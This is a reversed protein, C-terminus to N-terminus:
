MVKVQKIEWMLESEVAWLPLYSKSSINKIAFWIRGAFYDDIVIYKSLRSSRQKKRTVGESTVKNPTDFMTVNMTVIDASTKDNLNYLRVQSKSPWFFDISLINLGLREWLLLHYTLSEDM